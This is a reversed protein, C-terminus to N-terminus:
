ESLVITLEDENVFLYNKDNQLQFKNIRISNPKWGMPHEIIYVQQQKILNDSSEEIPSVREVIAVISINEGFIQSNRYFNVIDNKNFKTEM